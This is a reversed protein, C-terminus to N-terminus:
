KPSTSPRYWAPRDAPEAGMVALISDWSLREQSRNDPRAQLDAHFVADLMRATHEARSLRRGIWYLEQAIRALM